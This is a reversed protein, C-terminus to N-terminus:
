ETHLDFGGFLFGDGTENMRGHIELRYYSHDSPITYTFTAPPGWGRCKGTGYPSEVGPRHYVVEWSQGDYSGYITVEATGSKMHHAEIMSFILTAHPQDTYVDQWLWDEDGIMWGTPGNRGNDQDMQVYKTGTPECSIPAHISWHGNTINWSTFGDHFQPNILLNEGAATAPHFIFPLFIFVVLIIRMIKM